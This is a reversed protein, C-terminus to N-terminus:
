KTKKRVDHTNTGEGVNNYPRDDFVKAIAGRGTPIKPPQKKKKNAARRRGGPGGIYMGQRGHAQQEAGTSNNPERKPEKEVLNGEADEDQTILGAKLQKRREAVVDESVQTAAEQLEEKLEAAAETTEVKVEVEKTVDDSM